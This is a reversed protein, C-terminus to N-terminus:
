KKLFSTKKNHKIKCQFELLQELSKVEVFYQTKFDERNLDRYVYRKTIDGFCGKVIELYDYNLENDNGYMNETNVIRCKM